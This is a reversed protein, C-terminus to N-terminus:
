AGAEAGNANGKEADIILAPPCQDPNKCSPSDKPLRRVVFDRGPQSNVLENSLWINQDVPYREDSFEQAFIESTSLALVLLSSLSKKM